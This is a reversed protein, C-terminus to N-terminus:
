VGGRGGGYVFGPLVGVVDCGALVDRVEALGVSEDLHWAVVDTALLVEGGELFIVEGVM